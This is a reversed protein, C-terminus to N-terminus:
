KNKERHNGDFPVCKWTRGSRIRRITSIHVNYFIAMEISSLKSTRINVIDETTFKANYCEEGCPDRRGRRSMVTDYAGEIGVLMPFNLLADPGLHKLAHYDYAKAADIIDDYVDSFIRVYNITLQAQWKKCAKHWSVGRYGSKNTNQIRCNYRNLSTSADRLNDRWNHLGNRDKHDIIRGDGHTCGMIFRHMGIGTGRKSGPLRIDRYAYFTYRDQQANWKWQNLWEYDADDVLAVQGHTLLIEKM